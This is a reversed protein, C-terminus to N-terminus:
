CSKNSGTLSDMLMGSRQTPEHRLQEGCLTFTACGTRATTPPRCGTPINGHPGARTPPPVSASRDSSTSPSCGTPSATWPRRSGTWNRRATRTPPNKWTRTRQFTVGRRTLLDRLAERGTRIVCGHVKGLYAVLKRLTWRTFPMGLEAPRTTATQVVLEEDDPRLPRSRGGAWRSDLCALGIEDFRHVVAGLGGQGGRGCVGRLPAPRHRHAARRRRAGPPKVERGPRRPPGCVGGMSDPLGIMKQGSSSPEPKTSM